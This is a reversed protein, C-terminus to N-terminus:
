TAKFIYGTRRLTHIMPNRGHDIKKRLYSVYLEVVNSRGSYDYPWVRSLIQQKTVVRHANRVFFRLLEFENHSLQIYEGARSVERSDDDLVMDGLTMVASNHHLEVGARRLMTRIRSLLGELSFPKTLWRDGAAFRVKRDPEGDASSLLPLSLLGPQQDRLLQLLEMGDANPLRPDVIAVDPRHRRAAMVATAADGATVVDAGECRLTMSVMEAVMREDDVVLIKVPTGDARRLAAGVPPRAPAASPELPAASLMGRNDSVSM